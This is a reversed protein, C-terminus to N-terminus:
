VLRYQKLAREPADPFSFPSTRVPPSPPRRGLERRLDAVEARLGQMEDRMLRLETLLVTTADPADIRAHVADWLGDAGADVLFAAQIARYGQVIAACDVCGALHDDVIQRNINDLESDVYAALRSRIDDCATM